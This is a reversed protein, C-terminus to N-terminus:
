LIKIVSLKKQGEVTGTTHDTSPGSYLSKTDGFGLIWDFQDTKSNTFTCFDTEFDCSGPEACPFPLISIDDLSVDGSGPLM